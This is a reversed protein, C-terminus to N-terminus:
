AATFKKLCGPCCFWYDEGDVVGHPTDPGITVTMGCIPDIATAAPTEVGAPTGVAAPRGVAAPGILLTPGAVFEPEKALAAAEGHTAAHSSAAKRAAALGGVRMERVIEALVALAIEKPNRAGIDLGAHPRIREREDESLEMADLVVAARKHSAVLAILGVGADLAGRIAREEDRGLGAVVAATVGAYAGPPAIEFDLFTALEAVATGIPTNGDVAVLPKPLVPRLFIEIAGGSHCPNVVVLAGPTEPFDAADEPLVRLLVTNGDRLTGMAAARVSTEACSGGVFGEISGDALIVADDGARASTPEQARVVTAHVFPRRADALQRAREATSTTM